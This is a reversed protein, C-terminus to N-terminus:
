QEYNEYTKRLEMTESLSKTIALEDSAVTKTDPVFKNNSIIEPKSYIDLRLIIKLINCAAQHCKKLSSKFLKSKSYNGGFSCVLYLNYKKSSNESYSIEFASFCSWNKFLIPYYSIGPIINIWKDFDKIENLQREKCLKSFVDEM